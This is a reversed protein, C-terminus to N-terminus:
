IVFFLGCPISFHRRARFQRSCPVHEVLYGSRVILLATFFFWPVAVFHATHSPSTRAEHATHPPSAALCLPHLTIVACRHLDFVRLITTLLHTIIFFLSSPHHYPSPRSLITTTAVVFGHDLGIITRIPDLRCNESRICIKVASRRIQDSGHAAV